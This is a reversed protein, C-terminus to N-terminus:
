QNSRGASEQLCFAHCRTQARAYEFSGPRHQNKPLYLAGAYVTVFFKKRKGVGNLWLKQGNVDVTDAFHIGSIDKAESQAWPLYILAILFISIIRKFM